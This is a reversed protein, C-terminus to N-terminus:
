GDTVAGADDAADLIRLEALLAAPLESSARYPLYFAVRDALDAVRARLQVACEAPSGWVALTRVVTDDILGGMDQWRGQKSMANLEPQLDGWGEVDLVPRYAPTSGYFSLLGKVGAEAVAREEENRFCGCIVEAVVQFGERSRGSVALGEAVLPLTKEVLHRRSNFPMTLLGDAAEAAVRTMRPGLAGVLIPPPGFPHPGPSFTPTMLTHETFRGRFDLRSAPGGEWAEFIAKIAQVWERMREAPHEFTAGYRREVQAKVQSGLGLRFHGGSLAHLDWAAHALHIPSRPFAIAVNTMLDLDTGASAAGVLPFFVDHPGEFTFCGDFGETALRRAAEAEEGMGAQLSVDYKM